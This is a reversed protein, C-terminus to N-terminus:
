GLVAPVMRAAERVIRHSIERQGASFAITMAADCIANTIRPIGRSYKYVHRVARDTFLGGNVAGANRLRARVYGQTERRNLPAIRHRVTIRQVLQRLSPDALIADLEPQGVLIVHLLKETATELNTLLRIEELMDRTMTQAEDVILVPTRGEELREILWHNLVVLCEGKTAPRDPIGFEAFIYTLLGLLDVRPNTVYAVPAEAGLRELLARVMLTKGTGVEGTLVIFGKREMVGYRLSALAERHTETEVLFGPDPLTSFPKRRLGFFTEYM